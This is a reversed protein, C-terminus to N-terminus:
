DNSEGRNTWNRVTMQMKLMGEEGGVLYAIDCINGLTHGYGEVDMYKDAIIHNAALMKLIENQKKKTLIKM